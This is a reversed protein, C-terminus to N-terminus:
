KATLWGYGARLAAPGGGDLVAGHTVVVRDFDHALIADIGARAQIRDNTIARLIRTPGFRDFGGNLRMFLRTMLPAPARVNFALDGLLLTRSPAHIWAIEDLRPMGGVFIPTLVGELLAALDAPPAGASLPVDIPLDPRKRALGAPAIMRADPFHRRAAVLFLHHLLNPALLARVPGLARLSEAAADDLKGPSHLAVSGSPLRIATTRLGLALGPSVSPHDICYLDSDLPRLQGANAQTM